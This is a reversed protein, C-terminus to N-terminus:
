RLGAEFHALQREVQAAEERGFLGRQAGTHMAQRLLEPAMNDAIGDLLTRAPSTLPISGFWNTHAKSINAYHLELGRPVRLRRGAWSTPLTMHIRAPLVDSLDHLALATEHSFIGARQGWLWFVMLDEHEGGPFHVMRYIGRRVRVIKGNKLYKALLQPSYGAAAAQATTFHGNQVAAVGYLRDWTPKKKTPAM